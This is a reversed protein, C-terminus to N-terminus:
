AKDSLIREAAARMAAGQGWVNVETYFRKYVDVDDAAIADCAVSDCNKTSAPEDCNAPSQLALLASLLWAKKLKKSM